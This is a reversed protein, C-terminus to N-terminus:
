ILREENPPKMKLVSLEYRLGNYEQKQPNYKGHQSRKKKAMSVFVLLGVIAVFLMGGIVPAIVYALEKSRFEDVATETEPPIMLDSEEAENSVANFKQLLIKIVIKNVCLCDLM